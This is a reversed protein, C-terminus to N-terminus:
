CTPASARGADPHVAGAVGGGALRPPVPGRRLARGRHRGGAPGRPLPARAPDHRAVRLRVGRAEGQGGRVAPRPRARRLQRRHPRHHGLAPHGPHDVDAQAPEGVRRHRDDDGLAVRRRGRGRYLRKDRSVEDHGHRAQRRLRRPARRGRRLPEARVHLGARLPLQAERGVPRHRQAVGQGRPHGHAVEGRDHRRGRLAAACTTM